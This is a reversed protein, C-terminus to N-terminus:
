KWYPNPLNRIGEVQLIPRWVADGLHVLGIILINERTIKSRGGITWETKKEDQRASRAQLSKEAHTHSSTDRAYNVKFFEDLHMAVAVLFSEATVVGNPGGINVPPRYMIELTKPWNYELLCQVPISLPRPHTFGLSGQLTSSPAVAQAIPVGIRGDDNFFFIPRMFKIDPCLWSGPTPGPQCKPGMYRAAPVVTGRNVDCAFDLTEDHDAHSIMKTAPDYRMNVLLDADHNLSHMWYSIAHKGYTLGLYGQLRGTTM